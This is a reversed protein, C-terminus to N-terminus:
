DVLPVHHADDLMDAPRGILIREIVFLILVIGSLPIPLYTL